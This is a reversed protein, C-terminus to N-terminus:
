LWRVVGGHGRCARRRDKLHSWRGNKCRATAGPPAREPAVSHPTYSWGNPMEASAASALLAIMALASMYGGCRTRRRPGPVM